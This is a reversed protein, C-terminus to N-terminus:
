PQILGLRRSLLVDAAYCLTQKQMLNSFFAGQHIIMLASEKKLM